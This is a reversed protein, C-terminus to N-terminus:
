IRETMVSSGLGSILMPVFVTKLVFLKAKKSLERKLVVSYQLAKCESTWNKTKSEIVQYYLMEVKGDTEIISWESVIFV